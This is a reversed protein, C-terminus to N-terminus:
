WWYRLKQAEVPMTEPKAEGKLIKVAMEGTQHGLTKYDLGLTLAAGNNVSSAEGAM